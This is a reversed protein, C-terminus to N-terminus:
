FSADTAFDEPYTIRVLTGSPNGDSDKLDLIDLRTPLKTQTEIIALREKTFHIGRSSELEEASKKEQSQQRGIGNDEIECVIQGENRSIRVMLCGDKKDSPFAHKIANEVFIQTLFTPILTEEPDIDADIKFSGKFRYDYLKEKLAMYEEIYSKESALDIAYEENIDLYRRYFRSAQRSYWRALEVKQDDIGDTISTFINSIMHHDLLRLKLESKLLTFKLLDKEKEYKKKRQRDVYYFLGIMGVIFSLIYMIIATRSLYWPPMIEFFLKTEEAFFAVEDSNVPYVLLQYTGPSLTLFSPQLSFVTSITDKTKTNLLRCSLINQSPDSFEIASFKFTLDNDGAVLRPYNVPDLFKKQDVRQNEVLVEDLVIKPCNENLNVKNPDVITAGNKGYFLLNGNGLEVNGNSHYSSVFMGDAQNFAVTKKDKPSYRVLGNNTGLWIFGKDDLAISEYPQSLRGTGDYVTELQHKSVCYTFVGANSAIWLTDSAVSRRCIGSVIGAGSIEPLATVKGGSFDFVQLYSGNFSVYLRNSPSDYFCEEMYRGDIKLPSLDTLRDPLDSKLILYVNSNTMVAFTDDTIQNVELVPGGAISHHIKRLSPDMLHLSSGNAVWWDQDHDRHITILRQDLSSPFAMKTAAYSDNQQKTLRFLEQGNILAVLSDKGTTVIKNVTFDGKEEHFIPPFCEQFKQNKLNTHWLGKGLESIWLNDFRDIFIQNIKGFPVISGKDYYHSIQKEFQRTTKNFFLLGHIKSAVVLYNYGYSKVDSYSVSQLAADHKYVTGAGSVYPNIAILGNDSALWFLSDNEIELYHVDKGNESAITDKHLSGDALFRIIEVGSTSNFFPHIIGQIVGERDIWPYNMFGKGSCRAKTTSFDKFVNIVFVDEGATFWLFSDREMHFASVYGKTQPIPWTQVSDELITHIKTSSTFWRRGTADVFVKSTVLNDDASVRYLNSRIGDYRYLGSSSSTFFYANQDLGFYTNHNDFLGQAAGYEHIPIISQAAVVSCCFMFTILYAKKM